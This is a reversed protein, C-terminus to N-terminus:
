LSDLTRRVIQARSGKSEARYNLQDSIGGYSYECRVYWLPDARLAHRARMCSQPIIGFYSILTPVEFMVVPVHGIKHSTLETADM